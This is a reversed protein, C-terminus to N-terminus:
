LLDITSVGINRASEEASARIHDPPFVDELRFGRRSPWIQNKPAIKTASYLRKGPNAALLQGLLRESHGAGYAAATDFFNCGLDVALQLSRLTQDDDSGTWGALGWMGFGIEAVDGLRPFTRFRM